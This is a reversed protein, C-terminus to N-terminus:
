VVFDGGGLTLDMFHGGGEFIHTVREATMYGNQVIDGLDLSVPMVSGGRVRADGFAGRVSLRRKKSKYVSLLTRARETAGTDDGIRAYFGLVGWKKIGEEDKATFRENIGSRKDSHVLSIVNYTGEDIGSEYRIDRASEKDIVTDLRLSNINKLTLRGADDYLVFRRGTNEFTEDLAGQMIDFLTRDQEDIIDIVYGTDEIEGLRLRYDESLRRILESATIGEGVFTDRNKLYRLQDYATVGIVGDKTRRKSFVYGSFVVAEGVSLTVCNGETFDIVGDKLVNFELRGPSGKRSLELKTKGVTVPSYIEGGNQILIRTEAM